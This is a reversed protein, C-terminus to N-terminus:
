RLRCTLFDLSITPAGGAGGVIFSASSTASGSPATVAIPGSTAGSPVATVIETATSSTLAATVGNFSVTNQSATASFGTGYIRVTAGIAGSGPSFDIISVVSSSRRAISLLNGVGDYIYVATEGTPDVVGVLRGSRDYLYAISGPSPGATLSLNVTATAGGTVVVGNQTLTLYGDASARVDYTGAALNPLSYTGDPGTVDTARATGGQVAEVTAGGVARGDSGRSVTGTIAGAGAVSFANSTAGTLGQASATLTYGNGANNISLDSFSAVGSAASRTAIGSLTGGGPNTGIAVTISATSNTVTNGQSDRVTVTPPGPIPSGPAANGPQTTFALTAAAGPNVTVPASDGATLADGSTRTATLVVGGEAKSYTVGSITVQSSGATITGALTGGLTGTGTRLSLTVATASAVATAAGANDQAAVVVPFSVGATPNTGGNVSTIALKTATSVWRTADAAAQGNADSVQLYGATGANFTFTGLLQWQGGGTQQNKTTNFTGGAHVLTYPVSTSRNPHSTWWVYVKYQGTAPITPTWRYTDAGSGCSYLSNTGYFGTAGSVCWTGTSSTGAQGNDIIIEAAAASGVVTSVLVAALLALVGPLIRTGKRVAELRERWDRRM